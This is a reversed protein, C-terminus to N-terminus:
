SIKSRVTDLAHIVGRLEALGKMRGLYGYGPKVSSDDIEDELKDSEEIHEEVKQSCDACCQGHETHVADCKQQTSMKCQLWERTVASPERGNNSISDNDNGM